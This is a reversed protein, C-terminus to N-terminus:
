SNVLRHLDDRAQKYSSFVIGHIGLANAANVNVERDDFFVSEEPKLDYKSLLTLYIDPDPKVKHVHCSFIGGDMYDRFTLAEPCEKILKDFYNSLFFIRYGNEKLEKMWPITFDRLKVLDSFNMMSKQIDNAIDPDDKIFLQIIDAVPLIGLDLQGWSPHFITGKALREIMAEEYGLNAFHQRYTFDVLVEGIDFIINKIM